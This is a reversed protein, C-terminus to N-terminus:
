GNSLLHDDKTDRWRSTQHNMKRHIQLPALPLMIRFLMGGDSNGQLTITGSLEHVLSKVHVLGIGTSANGQTDYKTTYGPQFVLGVDDQNIGPGDDEVEILLYQQYLKARIIVTGEHDIAEIANAVLNNIISLLSYHRQTSLPSSVEAKFQINKQLEEAYWENSKTVLSIIDPISMNQVMTEQKMFQSLSASLRQADKKVEHIKEALSLAQKSRSDGSLKRYLLYSEMTIQEVQEMMKHIYLQEQHLQSHILLMKEMRKDKEASIARIRRMELMTYFGVVLYSRLFGILLLAPLNDMWVVDGAEIWKRAVLEVINSICDIIGGIFGLLMPSPRLRSVRIVHLLSAFSFYFWAAPSHTYISETWLIDTGLLMDEVVRFFSVFSGVILGVLPLRAPLYWLLLFFFCATGLSLRFAGFFPTIKVESTIATILSIGFVILLWRRM